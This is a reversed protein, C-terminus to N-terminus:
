TPVREERILIPDTTELESELRKLLSVCEFFADPLEFPDHEHEARGECEVLILRLQHLILDTAFVVGIEGNVTKYWAEIISEADNLNEEFEEEWTNDGPISDKWVDNLTEIMSDPYGSGTRPTNRDVEILTQFATLRSQRVAIPTAATYEDRPLDITPESSEEEEVPPSSDGLISQLFSMRNLIYPKNDIKHPVNILEGDYRVVM